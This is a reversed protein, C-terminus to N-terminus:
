KLGVGLHVTYVEEVASTGLAEQLRLMVGRSVERWHEEGLKRRMLAVGGAGVQVKEWFDSLTSTTEAYSSTHIAVERFGAGAMESRLTEPDSLPPEGATPPLDPLEASISNMAVMFPASLAAMSSVVGRGGPRLVRLLERFGAARDPFFILGLLSFAGDFANDVYPLDQGDGVRVDALILGADDAQRRLNTVMGPSFDIASVVAGERAALLALSGPGAAVDVIRPAEPLVALQLAARAFHESMPSIRATYGDAVINWIEESAYSGRGASDQDAAQHTM